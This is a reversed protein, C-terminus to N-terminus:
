HVLSEGHNEMRDRYQGHYPNIRLKDSIITIPHHEMLEYLEDSNLDNMSYICLGLVRVDRASFLEDAKTEFELLRERGPIGSTLWSLDVAVRAPRSSGDLAEKIFGHLIAILSDPAFKGEALLKDRDTQIRLARDQIAKESDVGETILCNQLVKINEEPGCYFCNQGNKLGAALIKAVVAVAQNTDHYICAIHAGPRVSIGQYGIDMVQDEM